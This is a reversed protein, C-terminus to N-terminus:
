GVPNSKIDVNAPNSRTEILVLFAAGIRGAFLYEYQLYQPGKPAEGPL